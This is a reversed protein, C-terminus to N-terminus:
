HARSPLGFPRSGRRSCTLTDELMAMDSAFRDRMSLKGRWEDDTVGADQVLRFENGHALRARTDVAICHCIQWVWRLRQSRGALADGHVLDVQVEAAVDFWRQQLRLAINNTETLEANMRAHLRALPVPDYSDAGGTPNRTEPRYVNYYLTEVLSFYKRILRETERDRVAANRLSPDEPVGVVAAPTTDDSLSATPAPQPASLPLPQPGPYQVRAFSTVTKPPGRRVAVSQCGVVLGFLALAVRRRTM